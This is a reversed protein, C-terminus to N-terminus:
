SILIAAATRCFTLATSLITKADTPDNAEIQIQVFTHVLSQLTKLHTLDKIIHM